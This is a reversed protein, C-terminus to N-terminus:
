ITILLKMVVMGFNSHDIYGSLNVVYDFTNNKFFVEVEKHNNLDLKIFKIKKLNHINNNSNLSIVSITFDLKLLKEILHRGIFGTGGLILIKEKKINLINNDM